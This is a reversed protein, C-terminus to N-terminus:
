QAGATRVSKRQQAIWEWLKPENYAKVWVDHGLASYTTLQVTAGAKKLASEMARSDGVSVFPDMTNHFMWTPIHKIKPVADLKDYGCLPILAAFDDPHKEAMAWVGYGGVSLGTLIIRSTDVKYTTKVDTLAKYANALDETEPGWDDRTQPVVVIYEFGAPNKAIVPGLGVGFAKAPNSGSEFKGHLFVIVPYTKRGDYGHPVFVGYNRQSGPVPRIVFGTGPKAGQNVEKAASGVCGVNALMIVLAAIGMGIRVVRRM